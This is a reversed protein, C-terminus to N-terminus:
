PARSSLQFETCARPEAVGLPADVALAELRPLAPAFEADCQTSATVPAQVRHHGYIKPVLWDAVQCEALFNERELATLSTSRKRRALATQHQTPALPRKGLTSRHALAHADTTGHASPRSDVGQTVLAPPSSSQEPKAQRAPQSRQRWPQKEATSDRVTTHGVTGDPKVTDIKHNNAAHTVVALHAIHYEVLTAVTAVAKTAWSPVRLPSAAGKALIDVLRNARWMIPTIPKLDSALARGISHIPGHSPMWLTCEAAQTFNQDLAQGLLAWARALRRHPATANAYGGILTDLISKCDTVVLPFFCCLKAVVVFAWLEAGAADQVWCPPVGNGFALLTGSASVIVIAFGTRRAFRRSEDFLSGDVFWRADSPIHDPPPLLWAFSDGEPPEPMRVKLVFLGRTRLIDLRKQCLTRAFRTCEQPPQQWGGAPTSARCRHRHLLTGVAGLCLQCRSDSTWKRVSALRAQPWQGGAIASIMDGKMSPRFADVVKSRTTRANALKGVVDAFDILLTRSQGTQNQAKAADIDPDLPVLDPLENAMRDLRWRRVARKTAEAIVNPPDVILNYVQSDDSTITLGDIFTWGIRAATAVAASAPGSVKNWVPRNVLIKSSAHRMASCLADTPQWHEWCAPAWTQIPLVHADFAPDLTGDRGDLAHLTIDLSKGAGAPAAARAILRRAATLASMSMGTIFTGYTVVPTGAARAARMASIGHKRVMRIRPMRNALTKLRGRQVQVARRKGGGADTGLLKASRIPTLKKTRSVRAVSAAIRWRAANTTSKKKSVELGLEDEMLHVAHDTAGAVTNRAVAESPHSAEIDMDDVYLSLRVMPWAKETSTVVKFLLIKLEVTAIVSGATIGLVAVITRSYVGDIGVTRPLRYAALSLRLLRLDFGLARVAQILHEHPVKEFAKVLDLMAQAFALQDAAALEAHFASQWAARQAGMGRGGYVNPLHHAAEWRRTVEARSRMWVRVITPFLGIPRRGGDAKPLLVILILRMITPWDGFAEAALLLICLRDLVEDSLRDLARPAINDAGLGTTIPFSRIALRLVQLILAIPPGIDGDHFVGRYEQGERWLAAWQGAEQDVAGQDHLPLHGSADITSALKPHWSREQPGQSDDADVQTLGDIDDPAAGEDIEAPQLGLPSKTWGTVGRVFHFARKTPASPGAISPRGGNLWTKSGADMHKRTARDHRDAKLRAIRCLGRIRDTVRTQVATAFAICWPYAEALFEKHTTLRAIAAPLQRVHRTLIACSGPADKELLTACEDGRQAFCRWTTAIKSSDAQRRAIPGPAAMWRFRPPQFDHLTGLLSRWERRAAKHWTTAAEDLGQQTAEIGEHFVQEPAPLPGFPLTPDVRKPRVLQRIMARRADGRLILRSPWHPNTGGNELRQVEVVAPWLCRAVVFFDYTSGNCTPLNTAVIIGDVVNLWGSATLEAPTVNWDGGLVWPGHLRGLAETIADLIALNTPSMGETDKLWVSGLHLGGRLISATWALQIRHAFGDRVINSHEAIGHGIRAGVACGGSPRESLNLLASSAQM